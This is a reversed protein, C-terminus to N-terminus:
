KIIKTFNMYQDFLWSNKYNPFTKSLGSYVPHPFGIKPRYAFKYGIKKKALKRLHLKGILKNNVINVPKILNTKIDNFSLTILFYKKHIKIDYYEYQIVITMENQYKDKLWNPIKVGEHNTEFTIYLQNSSQLGEDKINVLIDKLVNLMNQNLIKQYELM